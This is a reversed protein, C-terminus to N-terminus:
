KHEVILKAGQEVKVQTTDLASKADSAKQLAKSLEVQLNGRDEPTKATSLSAQKERIENQTKDWAAKASRENDLLKSLEPRQKMETLVKQSLSATGRPDSGIKVFGLPVGPACGPQGDYCAGSNDGSKLVADLQASAAKLREIRQPPLMTVSTAGAVSLNVGGILVVREITGSGTGIAAAQWIANVKRPPQWTNDPPIKLAVGRAKLYRAAAVVKYLERVTWLPAIESAYDKFHGTLFDSYQLAADSAALHTDRPGYVLALDEHDFFVVHGDSSASLAITKPRINVSISPESATIEELRLTRFKWELHTQHFPLVGKLGNEAVVRKLAIDGELVIRALQSHPNIGLFHPETYVPIGVYGATVQEPYFFINGKAQRFKEVALKLSMNLLDDDARAVGARQMGIILAQLDDVTNVTSLLSDVNQPALGRLKFVARIGERAEKLSQALASTVYLDHAERNRNIYADFETNADALRKQIVPWQTPFNAPFDLAFGPSSFGQIVGEDPLQFADAFLRDYPIAQSPGQPNYIGFLQVSRLDDSVVLSTLQNFPREIPEANARPLVAVAATIVVIFFLGSYAFNTRARMGCGLLKGM